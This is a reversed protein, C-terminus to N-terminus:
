SPKRVASPLARGPTTQAGPTANVAKSLDSGDPMNVVQQGIPSPLAPLAPLAPPKGAYADIGRKAGRYVVFILIIQILESGVDLGRLTNSVIYWAALVSFFAVVHADLSAKDTAHDKLVDLVNYGNGGKMQFHVIFWTLLLALVILAVALGNFPPLDIM